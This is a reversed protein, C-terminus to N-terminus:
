NNFRKEALRRIDELKRLIDQFVPHALNRLKEEILQYLRYFVDRYKKHALKKLTRPLFGAFYISKEDEGTINDLIVELEEERNRCICFSLNEYLFEMESYSIVDIFDPKKLVFFYNTDIRYRGSPLDVILYSGELPFKEALKKRSFKSDFLINLKRSMILMRNKKLNVGSIKKRTDIILLFEVNKNTRTNSQKGGRYKVYEETLIRVDGRSICIEHIIEFPIIGETSYSLLIYPADINEILEGFAKEAEERYCYRSRTKVWDRRIGAKDKLEGRENYELEFGPKDWLAITNLLHYNSGYQHQRYPPDIYVIYPHFDGLKKILYNADEKSATCFYPSDILVPVELKIPKLIRSLADKGHGGFGKHYAKFVGSTNTHTAAKYLLVAILLQRKKEVVPDGTGPPYLKDIGNRLKDIALGNYRTYFLREKRFDAKNIDNSFASYYRSIYREGPPPDPLANLYSIVADIGGDVAFIRYLESQNTCIYASNIIYSYEEWDNAWVSFGIVRALRSVSGSGAFLDIFLEGSPKGEVIEVIGRHILPLLKRKNGIYAIIQSTLYEHSFDVQLGQISNVLKQM